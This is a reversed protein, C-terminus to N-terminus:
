AWLGFIMGGPGAKWGGSVPHFRGAGRLADAWDAYTKPVWVRVSLSHRALDGVGRAGSPRQREARPAVAVAPSWAQKLVLNVCVWRGPHRGPEGRVTRRRWGRGRGPCGPSSQCGVHALPLM